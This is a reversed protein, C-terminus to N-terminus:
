GAPAEVVGYALGSRGSRRPLFTDGVGIQTFSKQAGDWKKRCDREDKYSAGGTQSWAHFIPWGDEGLAAHVAKAVTAWTKEDCNAPIVKLAAKVQKEDVPPYVNLKEPRSADSNLPESDGRHSPGSGRATNGTFLNDHRGRLATLLM